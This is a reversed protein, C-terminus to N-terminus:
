GAQVPIARPRHRDVKPLHLELVGDRLAASIGEEDIRDGLAFQRHYGGVRYEEHLTTWSSDPQFAPDADISLVGNELHVRVNEEDVGPLDATVLYEEPREVIDVDPRFYWGSRTQEREVEQKRRPEIDDPTVRRVDSM